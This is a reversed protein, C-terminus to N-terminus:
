CCDEFDERYYENAPNDLPLDLEERRREVWQEFQSGVARALEAEDAREHEGSDLLACVYDWAECFEGYSM